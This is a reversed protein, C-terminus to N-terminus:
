IKCIENNNSNNSKENNDNIINSKCNLIFPIENSKGEINKFQIIEENIKQNLLKILNFLEKINDKIIYESCFVKKIKSKLENIAENYLQLAQEKERENCTFRLFAPMKKESSIVKLDIEFKYKKNLKNYDKSNKELINIIDQKRELSFYDNSYENNRVNLFFDIMEYNLYEIKEDLIISIESSRNIFICKSQKMKELEFLNTFHENVNKLLVYYNLDDKNVAKLIDFIHKYKKSSISEYQDIFINIIPLFLFNKDEQNELEIEKSKIEQIKNLAKEDTIKFFVILLPKDLENFNFTECQNTGTNKLRLSLNYKSHIKQTSKIKLNNDSNLKAEKSYYLETEYLENQLQNLDKNQKINENFPNMDELFKLINEDKSKILYKPGNQTNWFKIFCSSINSLSVKNTNGKKKQYKQLIDNQKQIVQKKINNMNDNEEKTELIEKEPSLAINENETQIDSSGCGM